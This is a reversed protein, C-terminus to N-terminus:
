LLTPPSPPPSHLPDPDIRRVGCPQTWCLAHRLKVAPGAALVSPMVLLQGDGFGLVSRPADAEPDLGGRLAVELADIAATWSLRGVEAPGLVALTV